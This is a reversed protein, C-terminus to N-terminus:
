LGVPYTEPVEHRAHPLILPELAHTRDIFIFADYRSSLSTPVYNGRAEREPDYVVGVARHGRIARLAAAEPRSQSARLDVYAGPLFGGQSGNPLMCPQAFYRDLWNFSLSQMAIMSTM